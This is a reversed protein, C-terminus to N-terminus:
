YHGLCPARNRPQPKRPRRPTDQTNFAMEGSQKNFACVCEGGQGARGMSRSLAEQPKKM